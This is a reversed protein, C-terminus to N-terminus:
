EYRIAKVADMSAAKMAPYLTAIFAVVITLLLVFAIDLIQVDVPLKDLLYVQGPLDIFKYKSLFYCATLGALLGTVTGILNIIVGQYIYIRLIENKSLGLTKLVGIETTREMVIMILTTIINFAAVIIVLLLILFMIKKELALAAFLSGNLEIWNNTRYPYGLKKEIKAALEPAKYIDKIRLEVGTVGKNLGFIESAREIPIYILESNYQYMGADFVGSVTFQSLKPILSGMTETSGFPTAVTILDGTHARIDEALDIGIYLENQESPVDGFKLHKKLVRRTTEDKIDFGRIIVGDAYNEFQILGKSYIFPTMSEIDKFDKLSDIIEQYNKVPENFYKLVVIHSNIDVIREKVDKQFGNMVSLVIILSAVGIFIGGIAIGTTIYGFITKRRGFLHRSAIFLLRNM